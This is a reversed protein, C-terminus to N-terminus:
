VDNFINLQKSDGTITNKHNLFDIIINIDTNKPLRHLLDKIRIPKESTFIIAEAIKILLEKHM